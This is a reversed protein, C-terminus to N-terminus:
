FLISIIESHENLKKKFMIKYNIKLKNNMNNSINKNTTFINNLGNTKWNDHQLRLLIKKENIETKTPGNHKMEKYDGQMPIIIELNNDIVRDYLEDDEGGWGWYNNPFGNILEFDKKSFSNVGGFYKGGVSYKSNVDGIHIPHFPYLEYYYLLEDNPILDIDHFIFYDFNDKLLLFGVNLLVGRNFKNTKDSQEIMFIKYEFFPKLDKFYNPMIEIFKKLQEERVHKVDDRYPIIIAFKITKTKNIVKRKNMFKKYENFVEKNM